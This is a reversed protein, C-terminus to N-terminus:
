ALLQTHFAKILEDYSESMRGVHAELQGTLASYKEEQEASGNGERDVNWNPQMAFMLPSVRQENPFVFFKYATFHLLNASAETFVKARERLTEELFYAEASSLFHVADSLLNSQTSWYAHQNWLDSALKQKQTEPFLKRVQAALKKDHKIVERRRRVQIRDNAESQTNRGHERIWLQYPALFIFQFTFLFAWAITAYVIFSGLWNVAEAWWVKASAFKLIGPWILAAGAVAAGWLGNAARWSSQLAISLIGRVYPRIM